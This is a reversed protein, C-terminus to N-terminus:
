GPRERSRLKSLDRAFRDHSYGWLEGVDRRFVDSSTETGFSRLVYLATVM